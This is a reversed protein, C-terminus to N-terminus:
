RGSSGMFATVAAQASCSGWSDLAPCPLSPVLSAEYFLFQWFQAGPPIKSPLPASFLENWVSPVACAFALHTHTHPLPIHPHLVAPPWQLSVPLPNSLYLSAPVAPFTASSLPNFHLHGSCPFPLCVAMHRVFSSYWEALFSFLHSLHRVIRLFTM